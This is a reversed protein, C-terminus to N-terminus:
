LEKGADAMEEGSGCVTCRAGSPDGRFLERFEDLFVSPGGPPLRYITWKGQKRARVFGAHRLAQLHFSLNSASVGLVEQLECACMEGRVHLLHLVKLRSADALAQFREALAEAEDACAALEESGPAVTVAPRPYSLVEM